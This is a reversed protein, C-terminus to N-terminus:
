NICIIYLICTKLKEINHNSLREIRSTAYSNVAIGFVRFESGRLPPAHTTSPTPLRALNCHQILRGRSHLRHRPLRKCCAQLAFVFTSVGRQDGGNSLQWSRPPQHRLRLRRGLHEPKPGPAERRDAVWVDKGMMVYSLDRHLKGLVRRFHTALVKKMRRASSPTGNTEMRRPHNAQKPHRIGSVQALLTQGM